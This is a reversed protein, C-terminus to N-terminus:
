RCIRGWGCIPGGDAHLLPVAATVYTCILGVMLLLIRVARKM